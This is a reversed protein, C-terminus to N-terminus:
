SLSVVVSRGGRDAPRYTLSGLGELARPKQWGVDLDHQGHTFNLLREASAALELLNRRAVLAAHQTRHGRVGLSRDVQGFAVSPSCQERQAV